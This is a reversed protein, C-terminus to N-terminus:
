IREKKLALKCTSSKFVFTGRITCYLTITSYGAKSYDCDICKISKVMIGDKRNSKIQFYLITLFRDLGFKM